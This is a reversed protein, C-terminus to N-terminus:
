KRRQLAADVITALAATADGQPLTRLLSKATDAHHQAQRRTDELASTKRIQTVLDAAVEVDIDADSAAIVALRAAIEDSEEAAVILPWTLKGERLDTCASKGTTEPDGDLDLADDVLQFATGLAVGFEGLAHVHDRSLGGLTAGAQLAWRFLAATKGRVVQTYLERDPDFRRRRQLQLAEASVMEALTDLCAMRMAPVAREVHRLADVLLHDGGLVCASNGYVRRAAPAGRRLDGEDIVDDHLLTAAHVLECAIAAERVADDMERGGVRAALAVCVPRIRKGPRQLLYRASRWGLDRQGAGIEGLTGELAALDGSLWAWLGQLRVSLNPLGHEDAVSALAHLVPDRGSHRPLQATVGGVDHGVNNRLPATATLHESM